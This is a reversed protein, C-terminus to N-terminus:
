NLIFAFDYYGGGRLYRKGWVESNRYIDCDNEYFVYSNGKKM